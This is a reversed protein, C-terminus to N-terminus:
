FEMWRPDVFHLFSRLNVQIILILWFTVSNFTKSISHKLLTSPDKVPQQYLMSLNCSLSENLILIISLLEHTDCSFLNYNIYIELFHNLCGLLFISCNTNKKNNNHYLLVVRLFWKERMYYQCCESFVRELCWREDGCM